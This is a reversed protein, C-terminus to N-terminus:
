KKLIPKAFSTNGNSIEGTLHCYKEKYHINKYVNWKAFAEKCFPKNPNFNIKVGTRICFGIKNDLKNSLKELFSNEIIESAANLIEQYGKENKEFLVSLEFNNEESFKYFNMSSVICIKDSYYIKAHLNECFLISLNKISHLNNELEPLMDTKGYVITIDIKKNIIEDLYKNKIQLYPSIIGVFEDAKKIM